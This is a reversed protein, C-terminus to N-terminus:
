EAQSEEMEMAKKRKGADLVDVLVEEVVWDVEL